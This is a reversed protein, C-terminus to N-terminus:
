YKQHFSHPKGEEKEKGKGQKNKYCYNKLKVFFIYILAITM